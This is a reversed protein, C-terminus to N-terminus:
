GRDQGGVDSARADGEPEAAAERKGKSPGPLITVDGPGWGFKSALRDRRKEDAAARETEQDDREPDDAMARNEGIPDRVRRPPFTEWDWQEWEGVCGFPQRFEIADGKVGFIVGNVSRVAFRFEGGISVWHYRGSQICEVRTRDAFKDPSIDPNSKVVSREVADKLDCLWGDLWAFEMCLEKRKRAPM